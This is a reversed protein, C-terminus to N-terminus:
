RATTLSAVSDSDSQRWILEVPRVGHPVEFVIIGSLVDDNRLTVSPLPLKGHLEPPENAISAAATTAALDAAYVHHQSDRVLFDGPNVQLDDGSRNTITVLVAIRDLSPNSNAPYAWNEPYVFPGTAALTYPTSGCGAVVLSVALIVLTALMMGRTVLLGLFGLRVM